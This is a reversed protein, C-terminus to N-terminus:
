MLGPLFLSIAPISAILIVVPIEAIFFVGVGYFIRELSVRDGVIAKIVFVNLGVPPTILGVEILKVMLVGFWILSFGNAEMIPVTLPLSLLIIGLPDLVMGLLLYFLVILGIIVGIPLGSGSVWFVLEEAIGSLAVFAVLLKGGIAVVFILATQMVSERLSEGIKDLTVRRLLLALLLTAGAGFAAAETATFFGLYIGGLILIFLLGLPWCRRLAQWRASATSDQAPLPAADPHVRVWVAIVVLYAVLSMLGPILAAAFLKAISQEVFIGYILLLISPPILAGLTGGVAVSGTALSRSYGQNLMEPVAIRGMAAACALSSGSVASFGGCGLISAMAVGGPVRVLWLRAAHFIDTTFGANYALVGIFIFLPVAAFPYSNLFNYPTTTLLLLTPKLGAEPMFGVFPRWSYILYSGISGVIGMAVGIPVRLLLLVLLVALGGFGIVSPDMLCERESLLRVKFRADM